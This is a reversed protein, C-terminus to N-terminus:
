LFHMFVSRPNLRRPDLRYRLTTSHQLNILLQYSYCTPYLSMRIHVTRSSFPCTNIKGGTM